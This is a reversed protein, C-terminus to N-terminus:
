MDLTAGGDVRLDHMTIHRAADSSLFLATAAIDDPQALRGLPIGLRYADADGAIVGASQDTGDWMGRLMPTDTSGPSIINCRIGHPAIELGLSRLYATAAAKSAGYAAMNTRPTSAANSGVATIVGCGAAIFRRAAERAVNMTGTANVALCADWDNNDETLASGARLVGATHVLVSVTGIADTTAAFAQEVCQRDTVDVALAFGDGPVTPAALDWRAVTAGAQEFLAATAAGIGGDAGTIVVSRGTVGKVDM